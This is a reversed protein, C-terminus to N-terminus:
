TTAPPCAWNRTSRAAPSGACDALVTCCFRVDSCMTALTRPRPSHERLGAPRSAALERDREELARSMAEACCSLAVPRAESEFAGFGGSESRLMNLFVTELAAVAAPATLNM